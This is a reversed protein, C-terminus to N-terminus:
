RFLTSHNAWMKFKTDRGKNDLFVRFHGAQSLLKKYFRKLLLKRLHLIGISCKSLLNRLKQGWFLMERQDMFAVYYCLYIGSIALQRM